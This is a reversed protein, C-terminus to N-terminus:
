MRNTSLGDYGLIRQEDHHDNSGEDTYYLGGVTVIFYCVGVHGGINNVLHLSDQFDPSEM